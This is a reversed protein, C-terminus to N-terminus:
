HDTNNFPEHTSGYKSGFAHGLIFSHLNRISIDPTYEVLDAYAAVLDKDQSADEFATWFFLQAETMEQRGIKTYLVKKLEACLENIDQKTM